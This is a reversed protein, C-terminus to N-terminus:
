IILENRYKKQIELNYMGVGGFEPVEGSAVILDVVAFWFFLCLSMKNM